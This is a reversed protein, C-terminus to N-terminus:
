AVKKPSEGESKKKLLDAYERALRKMESDAFRALAEKMLSQYRIGSVEAITKFDDIVAKPLRISIPQLNLADNVSKCEDDSALVAYNADAGLQRSEWAEDTGAIKEVNGKAM